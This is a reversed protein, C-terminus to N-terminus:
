PALQSETRLGGARDLLENDPLLTKPELKFSFEHRDRVRFPLLNDSVFDIPFYQHAPTNVAQMVTLTEYGDKVLTMERTGYYTFDVSVPTVGVERGEFMVLAGPPDSRVTMRRRVSNCGSGACCGAVILVLLTVRRWNLRANRFPSLSTSM